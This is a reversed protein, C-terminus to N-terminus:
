GATETQAVRYKASDHRKRREDFVGQSPAEGLPVLSRRVKPPDAPNRATYRANHRSACEVATSLTGINVERASSRHPRASAPLRTPRALSPPREASLPSRRIQARAQRTGAPPYRGAGPSFSAFRDGPPPVLQPTASPGLLFWAPLPVLMQLVASDRPSIV